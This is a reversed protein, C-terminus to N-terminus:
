NSFHQFVTDRILNSIEGQQPEMNSDRWSPAISRCTKNLPLSGETKVIFIDVTKSEGKNLNVPVVSLNPIIHKFFDYNNAVNVLLDEGEYRKCYFAFNNISSPANTPNTFNVTIKDYKAIQYDAIKITALIQTPETIEKYNKWISFLAGQIGYLAFIVIVIITLGKTKPHKKMEALIIELM